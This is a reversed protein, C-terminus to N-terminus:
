MQQLRFPLILEQEIVVPVVEAQEPVQEMGVVVEVLLLL